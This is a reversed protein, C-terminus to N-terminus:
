KLEGNNVMTSAVRKCFRIMETQSQHLTLNLEGAPLAAQNINAQNLRAHYYVM